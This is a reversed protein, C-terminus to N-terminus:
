CGVLKDHIRDVQQSTMGIWACYDRVNGYRARFMDLFIEMNEAVPLLKVKGLLEEEPQEGWRATYTKHYDDIIERDEAGAIMLLLAATIGTRDKGAHCNFMAGGETEALTTLVGRANDRLLTLMIYYMASEEPSYFPDRWWDDFKRHLYTFGQADRLAHPYKELEAATRLDVITTFGKGRLMETEEPTINLIINSRAFVGHRTVGGDRLRLGGLDRFNYLNDTSVFAM